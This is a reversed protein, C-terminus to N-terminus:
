LNRMKIKTYEERLNKIDTKQVEGLEIAKKQMSEAEDFLKLKYLLHAYTDYYAAKPSLEISRRSWQMAKYLYGEKNDAMLYFNWAGNNLESAYNEITRTSFFSYSITRKISGNNGNNSDSVISVTKEANKKAAIFNLSDLKRISDVSLKLYHYDYFNSAQQLYNATDKIAFYYQIMKSSRAKYAERYNESWSAQAFNAVEYAMGNNKSVIASDMTNDILLKNMAIRDALPETKYISDILYKNLHVLKYAYGGIVPGAKLVFLVEDYNNLKSVELYSVYKEILSANNRIGAKERRVIYDKLFPGTNNGAVYTSDYEVLSKEKTAAIARDAISLLKESRSLLAIDDFLLGGKADLFIFSPFRSIRYDKIIKASAATDSIDAKFNIFSSNFKEIVKQDQLGAMFNPTYVPPAITILIALTKKEQKSLLMAKDFSSEYKIKQAPLNVVYFFAFVLIVISKKM